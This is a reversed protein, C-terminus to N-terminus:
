LGAGSSIKISIHESMLYPKKTYRFAFYLKVLHGINSMKIKKIKGTPTVM